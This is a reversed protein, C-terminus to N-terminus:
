NGRFEAIVHPAFYEGEKQMVVTKKTIRYKGAYKSFRTDDISFVFEKNPNLANLNIYSFGMSLIKSSESMQRKISGSTDSGKTTVVVRTPGSLSASSKTAGSEVSKVDGTNIDINIFDNGYIQDNVGSFDKIQLTSPDLNLLSYKEIPNYYWGKAMTSGQSKSPCSMLYTTKAENQVFATCKPNKDIIYLAKFDFFILTGNTHMGFENCIRDIQEMASVPTIVFEQYTKYNNPPTVLVNNLGAKNLVFTLSDILTASTLIANVLTKSKFLYDERYLLLKVMTADGLNMGKGFTEDEKEKEEIINESVEPTMEEMFIYFNDTVYSSFAPIDNDTYSIESFQGYQLDIFAKLEQNKKKMARYVYNPVVVDIEFFPFMFNDYDKDIVITSIHNRNIEYPQGLSPVSLSMRNMKYKVYSLKVDSLNM